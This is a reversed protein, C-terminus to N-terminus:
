EDLAIVILENRLLVGGVRIRNGCLDRAGAPEGNISSVAVDVNIGGSENVERLCGNGLLLADVNLPASLRRRQNAGNLRATNLDADATLDAFNPCVVGGNLLKGCIQIAKVRLKRPQSGARAAQALDGHLRPRAVTAHWKWTAANSFNCEVKAHQLSEPLQCALAAEGARYLVAGGRKWLVEEVAEWLNAGSFHMEGGSELVREVVM